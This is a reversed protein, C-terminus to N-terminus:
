AGRPWASGDPEATPTGKAEFSYSLPVKNDLMKTKEASSANGAAVVMMTGYYNLGIATLSSRAACRNREQQQSSHFANSTYPGSRMSSPYDHVVSGKSDPTGDIPHMFWGLLADVLHNTM